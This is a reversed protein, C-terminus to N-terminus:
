NKQRYYKGDELSFDITSYYFCFILIKSVKEDLILINGHVNKKNQLIIKRPTYRFEFHIRKSYAAAPNTAQLLYFLQSAIPFTTDGLFGIQLHLKEFVQTGISKLLVITILRISLKLIIFLISYYRFLVYQVKCLFISFRWAFDLKAIM